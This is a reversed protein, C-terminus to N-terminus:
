DNIMRKNMTNQIYPNNTYIYEIRTQNSQEHYKMHLTLAYPVTNLYEITKKEKQYKLQPNTNTCIQKKKKKNWEQFHDGIM